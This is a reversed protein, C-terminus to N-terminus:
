YWTVKKREEIIDDNIESVADFLRMLFMDGEANEGSIGFAATAQVISDICTDIAFFSACAAGLMCGTGTIGGLKKTGNEIVATRSGDTVIDKEGSALVIVGLSKALEKALDITADFTLKKDADVGSSRYNADYLARIESYNGKVLMPVKPNRKSIFPFDKKLNEELEVSEVGTMKAVVARRLQSCAVGVADIVIPIEKEMAECYSIAMAELRDRTINGFNLLLAKASATIERVEGPHEAMIPRAGLLLVANACQMISIPNTICHILPSQEKLQKCISQNM